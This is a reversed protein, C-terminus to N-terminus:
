YRLAAAVTGRSRLLEAAAGHVVVIDSQQGAAFRLMEERWALAEADDAEREEAAPLVLTDVRREQLARGTQPKGIVAQARNGDVLEHVVELEHNQTHHAVVRDIRATLRDPTDHVVLEPGGRLVDASGAVAAEVSQVVEMPGWTILQSWGFREILAPLQQMCWTRLADHAYRHMSRAFADHQVRSESHMQPARRSPGQKLRAGEGEPVRFTTVPTLTGHVYADVVITDSSCRVVGVGTDRIMIDLLPEIRPFRGLTVSPIVPEDLAIWMGHGDTDADVFGALGRHGIPRIPLQDLARQTRAIASRIRQVRAEPGTLQTLIEVLRAHAHSRLRAPDDYDIREYVSIFGHESHSHLLSSLLPGDLTALPGGNLRTDRSGAPFQM